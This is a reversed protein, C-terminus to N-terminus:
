KTEKLHAIHTLIEDIATNHGDIVGVAYHKLIKNPNPVLKKALSEKEVEELALEYGERKSQDAISTLTQRIKNVGDQGLKNLRDKREGESMKGKVQAVIAKVAENFLENIEKELEEVADEITKTEM